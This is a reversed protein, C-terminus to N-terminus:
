KNKAEKRLQEIIGEANGAVRQAAESAKNLESQQNNVMTHLKDQDFKLWVAVILTLTSPVCGILAVAVADSMSFTEM